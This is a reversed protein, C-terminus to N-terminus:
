REEELSAVERQFMALEEAEDPEVVRVAMATHLLLWDGPSVATGELTLVALSVVRDVGNVNVVAESADGAVSSVRGVAAICM